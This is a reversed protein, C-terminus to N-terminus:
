QESVPHMWEEADNNRAGSPLFQALTDDIGRHVDRAGDAAGPTRKWKILYRVGNVLEKLNQIIM